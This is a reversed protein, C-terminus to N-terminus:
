VFGDGLEQSLRKIADSWASSSFYVGSVLMQSDHSFIVGESSCRLDKLKAEHEAASLSSHSIMIYILIGRTAVPLLSSPSNGHRPADERRIMRWSIHSLYVVM